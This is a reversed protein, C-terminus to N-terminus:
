EAVRYVTYSGKAGQKNPDVQRIREAIEVTIGQRKKLGAFFGRVTHQAWGTAEAIQAVTAGEPRRLMALVVEQKTGERPKRPAGTARTGRRSLVNRLMDMARTVPDKDANRPPTEEWAALLREAAERLNVSGMNPVEPATPAPEASPQEEGQLANGEGGQPATDRAARGENPDIGIARLGEDTVQILIPTGDADKRWVMALHDRPAAM